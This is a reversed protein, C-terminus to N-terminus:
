YMRNLDTECSPIRSIYFTRGGIFPSLDVSTIKLIGNNLLSGKPQGKDQTKTKTRSSKNGKMTQYETAEAIVGLMSRRRGYMAALPGVVAPQGGRRRELWGRRRM